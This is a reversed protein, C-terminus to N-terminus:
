VNNNEGIFTITFTTGENIKSECKIEANHNKCINQVIYLGLGTGKGSEKNTYFPSFIKELSEVDIGIGNDGVILQIKNEESLCIKIIIEGNVKIADLSNSVLNLAVQEIQNPDGFIIAQSLKVEKTLIVKRKKILPELMEISNEVLKVLDFNSFSKASKKSHKLINGTIKSIKEIQNNVVNLDDIYDSLSKNNSAEYLLYDARSMIIASHNNIDHAMSATLEGLTVMKDARQLQDFHMEEIQGRSYKLENVMRNYHYNLISFEDKSVTPLNLSLNGKEVESLALIFNNLPKNILKNFIYYFSFALIILLVFGLFIMHFYGTYFKVEAKTLDTDVDLYSNIKETHCTQCRKEMIIPQIATYTNTNENLSIKRETIKELKSKLHGPEVIDIHKGIEDYHIAYKIIGENNLIRIHEVSKNKGIQEVVSQVNKEDGKMMSNNLGFIMLDIAAGVMIVSRDHFNKSFQNLLFGVPIGISLIIIIISLAIFKSKISRFM